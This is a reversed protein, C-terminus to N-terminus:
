LVFFFLIFILTHNKNLSAEVFIPPFFGWGGQSKGPMGRYRNRNVKRSDVNVVVILYPLVGFMHTAISCGFVVCNYAAETNPNQDTFCWFLANQLPADLYPFHM